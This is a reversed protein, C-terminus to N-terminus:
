LIGYFKLIFFLAMRQKKCLLEILLQETLVLLKSKWHFWAFYKETDDDAYQTIAYHPVKYKSDFTFKWIYIIKLFWVNQKKLYDSFILSWTRKKM